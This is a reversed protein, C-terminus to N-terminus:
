NLSEPANYAKILKLIEKESNSLYPDTKTTNQIKNFCKYLKGSTYHEIIAPHVYYKRCVSRTNGLADAAIDFASLINSKIEKESTAKELDMLANFFSVSASWTRFDKATYDTGCLNQLYENVHSSKVTKKEGNEDIYKFLTWGPLEECRTVLRVLKKNRLSVKHAIGKKGIYEIYLRDKYINIHRKRLTTLGYSKNQKEYQSNGIRIHTEEMLRIILAVVKEKPWGKKNLDHELQKRITPLKKGFAYMKYFKTSNRIHNWNPHYLYQKRGKADIGVAQLHSNELHSIKVDKWMPPIVLKLIRNLEEKNQIRKGDILYTFGKGQKKRLIPLDAEYTYILNYKSIASEPQKLLQQLEDKCFLIDENTQTLKM